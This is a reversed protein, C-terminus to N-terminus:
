TFGAKSPKLKENQQKLHSLLWRFIQLFVYKENQEGPTNFISLLKIVIAEIYVSYLHLVKRNKDFVKGIFELLGVKPFM